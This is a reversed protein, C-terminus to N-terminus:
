GYGGTSIANLTASNGTHITQDAGANVSLCTFNTVLVADSATCSGSTVTVIYTSTITPAVIIDQTKAGNSWSYTYSTGGSSTAHLKASYEQSITRDVGANVTLTCQANLKNISIIMLVTLLFFNSVKRLNTVKNCSKTSNKM